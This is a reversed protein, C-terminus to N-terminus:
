HFLCTGRGAPLADIYCRKELACAMTWDREAPTTFPARSSFVEVLFERVERIYIENTKDNM